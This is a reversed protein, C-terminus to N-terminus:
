LLGFTLISLAIAGFLFALVLHAIPRGKFQTSFLGTFLSGSLGLGFNIMGGIVCLLVGLMLAYLAPDPSEPPIFPPIFAFFFLSVKPNSINTLMGRMVLASIPPLTPQMEDEVAVPKLLQVALYLLYCAGAYQFYILANPSIVIAFHLVAWLLGAMLLGGLSIGLAALAAGRKGYAIGNAIVYAMDAGPIVMLVIIAALYTIINEM